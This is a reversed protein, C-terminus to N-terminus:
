GLADFQIIFRHTKEDNKGGQLNNIFSSMSEEGSKSEALLAIEENDFRQAVLVDKLEM